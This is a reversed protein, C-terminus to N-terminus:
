PKFKIAEALSESLSPHAFITDRIQVAKLRNSLVFTLTAILETAGPGIILGGLVEGSAKDSVIKVFGATEDLIRAMGSALFDIRDVVVERGSRKAEEDSLGVSAIEPDTFICNPIVPKDALRYKNIGAINEAAVRGQYAAYHALMMPTACDGGAYINPISTQLAQNVVILGAEIKVGAAELGLGEINSKRGVAVLILDHRSLDSEDAEAGTKVQIGKKKFATTISRAAESDQGPLLQPMKEVITVRSGLISFLGAFECGIVGGGIILISPPVTKLQLLHDSSLIKKGDFKLKSLEYPRSGTAILISAANIAMGNDLGIANASLLRATSHVFDIGELISQMGGRLRLILADKRAQMVSFNIKPEACDVGFTSAKKTISYIKASQILAKTPICGHNLCTGGLEGKELLCVSLGLDKARLAANFGAWGAGIIALDYTM